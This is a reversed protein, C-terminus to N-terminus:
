EIEIEELIVKYPKSPDVEKRIKAPLPVYIVPGSKALSSVVYGIKRAM